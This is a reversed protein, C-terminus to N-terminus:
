STAELGHKGQDWIELTIEEDSEGRPSIVVDADM